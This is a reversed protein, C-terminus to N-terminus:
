FPQSSFLKLNESMGSNARFPMSPPLLSLQSYLSNSSDSLPNSESSVGTYLFNHLFYIVNTKQADRKISM